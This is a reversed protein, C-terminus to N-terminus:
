QKHMYHNQLAKKDNVQKHLLMHRGEYTLEEEQVAEKTSRLMVAHVIAYIPPRVKSLFAGKAVVGILLSPHAKKLLNHCVM